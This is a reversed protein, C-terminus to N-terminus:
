AIEAVTVGAGGEGLEGLRFREVRPHRKLHEQVRARLAGTGKGHIIRIQRYGHITAQELYQDLAAVGEDGSLGRVDIEMGPPPDVDLEPVPVKPLPAVRAATREGAPLRLRAISLRFKLAGHRVFVRGAQDPAALVEVMAELDPVWFTAGQTVAVADVPRGGGGPPAPRPNSVADLARAAAALSEIERGLEADPHPGANAAARLGPAAAASQARRWTQRAEKLLREAEAISAQAQTGAHALVRDRMARLDSLKSRHKFLLAGLETRTVQLEAEIQGLATRRAELDLLLAGIRRETEPVLARARSLVPAPFGLREAVEIGLSRGPVGPVLRYHPVYTDPAFSMSANQIAGHTTAMEKLSGHHTTVIGLARSEVLAELIAQGLAAGEAPDTGAGLEDLLVLATPSAHALAERLQRLHSAFTSLNEEISQEDGIDAVVTAFFGLRTGEAAPVGLGAMAMLTVLGVTKLAVTKGGMNPGTIVLIRAGEGLTLDLPVIAEGRAAQSLELLPHRGRRLDIPGGLALEPLVMGWDRHLRTAAQLFDLRALETASRELAAGEQGVLATLSMLIRRVEAQEAEETERLRNGLEVVEFPELFVTNGSASRDHVVGRVRGLWELPVAVTFRGSRETTFSEAGIRGALRELRVRIEDRTAALRRRLQRLAASADDRVQAREDLARGIAAELAQFTGLETAARASLRPAKTAQTKLAAGVGRAIAATRAVDILSEPDLISGPAVAAELAARIDPAGPNPLPQDGGALRIWEELDAARSRADELNPAPGLALALEKGWPSDARRALEPLLKAFELVALTHPAIVPVPLADL